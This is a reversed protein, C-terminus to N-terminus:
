SSRKKGLRQRAESIKRRTAPDRAARQARDMMQRGQKSRALRSIRGMLSSM